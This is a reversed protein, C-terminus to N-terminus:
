ARHDLAFRRRGCAIKGDLTVAAKHTIYPLGSLRHRVFARNLLRARNEEVGTDVAVGATRLQAFGAGAVRPDPDQMAGVVRRVGAALCRHSCPIRAAGLADVTFSCPELSVYITADRALDGANAFAAAEAHPTGVGRHYGEGVIQGDKVVVAGVMPNPHTRGQRALFLARRMYRSDETTPFASPELM